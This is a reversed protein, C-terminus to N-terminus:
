RPRYPGKRLDAWYVCVESSLALSVNLVWLDDLSGASVTLKLGQRAEIQAFWGDQLGVEELLYSVTATLAFFLGTRKVGEFAFCHVLAFLRCRALNNLVRSFTTLVFPCTSKAFRQLMVFVYVAGICLLLLLPRSMLKVVQGDV